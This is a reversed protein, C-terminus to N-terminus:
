ATRRLRKGLWAGGWACACAFAVRLLARLYKGGERMDALGRGLVTQTAQCSRNVTPFCPESAHLSPFEIRWSLWACVLILLFAIVFLIPRADKRRTEVGFFPLTFIAVCFIIYTIRLM